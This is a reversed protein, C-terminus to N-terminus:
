GQKKREPPSAPPTAPGPPRPRVVAGRREALVEALVFRRALASRDRLFWLPDRPTGAV